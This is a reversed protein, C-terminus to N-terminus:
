LIIPIDSNIKNISPIKKNSQSRTQKKRPRNNLHWLKNLIIVYGGLTFNETFFIVYKGFNWRRKALLDLRLSLGYKFNDM